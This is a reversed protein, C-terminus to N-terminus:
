EQRFRVRRPEVIWLQKEASRTTLVTIARRMLALLSEKDQSGPRLVLVGCHSHPPYIRVDAFDLDLTVIIRNESTCRVALTPDDAGSMGEDAVTEAAFGADRLLLACEVPLNEDIKFKL